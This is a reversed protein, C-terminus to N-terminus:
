LTDLDVPRLCFSPVFEVSVSGKWAEDAACPGLLLRISEMSSLDRPAVAGLALLRLTAVHAAISAQRHM